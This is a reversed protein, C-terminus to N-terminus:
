HLYPFFILREFATSVPEDAGARTNFRPNYRFTIKAHGGLTQQKIMQLKCFSKVNGTSFKLEVKCWDSPFIELMEDFKVRKKDQTFGVDVRTDDSSFTISEVAPINEDSENTGGHRVMAPIASPRVNFVSCDIAALLLTKDSSFTITITDGVPVASLFEKSCKCNLPEKEQWYYAAGKLRKSYNFNSASTQKDTMLCIIDRLEMENYLITADIHAALEDWAASKFRIDYILDKLQDRLMQKDSPDLCKQQCAHRAWNWCAVLVFIEKCNLYPMRVIQRLTHWNCQFFGDTNLETDAQFCIKRRCFDILANLEFTIALQYALCM